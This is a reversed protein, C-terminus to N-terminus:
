LTSKRDEKADGPHISFGSIEWSAAAANFTEYNICDLRGGDVTYAADPEKTGCSALPLCLLLALLLSLFTLSLRREKTPKM